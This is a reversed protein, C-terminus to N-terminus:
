GWARRRKDLLTSISVSSKAPEGPEAAKVPQDPGCTARWSHPSWMECTGGMLLRPCFCRSQEGAHLLLQEERSGLSSGAQEPISRLGPLEHRQGVESAGRGPPCGSAQRRRAAGRDSQVPTPEGLQCLGVLCVSGSRGKRVCCMRLLLRRLRQVRKGGASCHQPCAPHGGSRQTVSATHQHEPAWIV